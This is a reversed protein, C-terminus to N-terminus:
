NSEVDADDEPAEVDVTPVSVEVDEEDVEVDGVETDYEPMNGSDVSVEPLVGEETQDVDVMYVGFAVAIVLVIAGIIAGTKM